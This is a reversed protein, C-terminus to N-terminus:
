RSSRLGRLGVIKADDFPLDLQANIPLPAAGIARRIEQLVPAVRVIAMAAEGEPLRDFVVLVIDQRTICLILSEDNLQIQANLESFLQVAKSTFRSIPVQLEGVARALVALAVVEHFAYGESRGDRGYIPPLVRKWHRLTEKTIGALKLAQATDFRM